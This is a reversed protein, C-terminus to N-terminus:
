NLHQNQYVQQQFQNADGDETMFFVNQNGQNGNNNNQAPMNNNNVNNMPVNQQPRQQMQPIYQQQMPM